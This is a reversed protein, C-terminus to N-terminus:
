KFNYNKLYLYKCYIEIVQLYIIKISPEVNLYYKKSNFAIKSLSVM